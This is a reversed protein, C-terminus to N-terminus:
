FRGDFLHCHRGGRRSSAHTAILGAARNGPLPLFFVSIIALVRSVLHPPGRLLGHSSDVPSPSPNKCACGLGGARVRLLLRLSMWLRLIQDLLLCLPTVVLPLHNRHLLNRLKLLPEFSLLLHRHLLDVTGDVHTPFRDDVSVLESPVSVFPTNPRRGNRIQWPRTFL